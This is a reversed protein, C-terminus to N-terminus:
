VLALGVSATFALVIGVLQLATLRERLVVGALVVTGIPYLANLVSMVPLTLPDDSAHLGAQIFVNALADLVGCAVVTAVFRGSWRTRGAAVASSGAAAAPPDVRDAGGPRLVRGARVVVVAAAGLVMVQLVRAVLLPAVGSDAPTMDYALVIGGFGCGAVAAAVVGRVTLRAGSGDRVSAVLVVAVVAVVLMVVALPSLATGRVVAVLVPLSAAFVATVPSLVSMPGIALAAYLLLVAVAGAGGGILGWVVAGSSFAGGVVVLGVLLPVIGVVAAVATVVVPRVRRSALGGLFDAFGYVLAGSLGLVVTLVAGM